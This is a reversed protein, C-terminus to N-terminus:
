VLLAYDPVYEGGLETGPPMHFFGQLNEQGDGSSGLTRRCLCTFLRAARPLPFSSLTGPKVVLVWRMLVKQASDSHVCTPGYGPHERERLRLSRGVEQLETALRIAAGELKLPTSSAFHASTADRTL